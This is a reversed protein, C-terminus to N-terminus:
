RYLVAASSEKGRSAKAKSEYITSWLGWVVIAMFNAAAVTKPRSRASGAVAKVGKEGTVLLRDEELNFATSTSTGSTAVEVGAGAM